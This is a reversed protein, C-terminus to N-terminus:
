RMNGKTKEIIFELNFSMDHHTLANRRGAKGMEKALEPDKLLKILARAFSPIFENDRDVLIGTTGDKLYWSVGGTDAAIVPLGCAAAEILVDGSAEYRSPLAFVDSMNYYRATDDVRGLVHINKWDKSIFRVYELLSGFGCMVLETQIGDRELEDSAVKFAVVLSMPDKMEEMRGVYLVRRTTTDGNHPEYKPLLIGKELPLIQGRFSSAKLFRLIEASGVIVWDVYRLSWGEFKEYLMNKMTLEKGSVTTANYLLNSYDLMVKAKSLRNVFVVAFLSPAAHCHVLKIDNRRVLYLAVVWGLMVYLWKSFVRVHQVNEPLEGNFSKRDCTLVFCKGEKGYREM